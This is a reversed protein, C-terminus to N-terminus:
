RSNGRGCWWYDGVVAGPPGGVVGFAAGVAAGGLTGAGTAVLNEGAENM